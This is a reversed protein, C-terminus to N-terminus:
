CDRALEDVGKSRMWAGILPLSQQLRRRCNELRKADMQIEGIATPTDNLEKVV